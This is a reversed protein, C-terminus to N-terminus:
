MRWGSCEIWCPSAGINGVITSHLSRENSKNNATIGFKFSTEAIWIQV